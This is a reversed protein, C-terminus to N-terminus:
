VSVRTLHLVICDDLLARELNAVVPNLREAARIMLPMSWTCASVLLCIKSLQSAEHQYRWEQTNDFVCRSLSNPGQWFAICQLLPAAHSLNNALIAVRFFCPLKM